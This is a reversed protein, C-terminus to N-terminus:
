FRYFSLWRFHNNGRAHHNSSKRSNGQPNWKNGCSVSSRGKWQGVGICRSSPTGSSVNWARYLQSCVSKRNSPEWRRLELFLAIHTGDADSTQRADFRISQCNALPDAKVIPKPRSNPKNTQIPLYIPLGQGDSDFVAFGADNPQEIGQSTFVVAAKQSAVQSPIAVETTKYDGQGSPAIPYSEESTDLSLSSGLFDFTRVKLVSPNEPIDFLMEVSIGVQEIHLTPAYNLMKAGDPFINRNEETSLMVDFVNGDDGDLGQVVLKFVRFEGILEGEEPSVEEFTQWANDYIPDIEFSEQLILEGSILDEQSPNPDKTGIPSAAGNGGYLLFEVETDQEGVIYDLEGGVDADFIRIYVSETYSKPVHFFIVQVKDDDGEEKPSDKGFTIMTARQKLYGKILQQSMENPNKGASTKKSELSNTEETPQTQDLAALYKEEANLTACWSILVAFSFLLISYNLQVKM